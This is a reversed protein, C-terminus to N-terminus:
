RVRTRRAAALAVLALGLLTATNPEPVVVRSDRGQFDSSGFASLLADALPLRGGPGSGLIKGNCVPDGVCIQTITAFADASGHTLDDLDVLRFGLILFEEELHELEFDSPVLFLLNAETSYLVASPPSPEPEPGISGARVPSVALLCIAAIWPIPAIMAPRM